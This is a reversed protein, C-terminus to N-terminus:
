KILGLQRKFSSLDYYDKHKIIKDHKNIQTTSLGKIEFKRNTIKTGDFEGNFTGGYVWEYIITNKSIFRDGNQVWYMDHVNGLFAETIAKSVDKKGKTTYDYTLDYWVVDDAYFSDIKTINHENWALMYNDLVKNLHNESANLNISLGITLLQLLLKKM